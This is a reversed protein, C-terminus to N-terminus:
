RHQTANARGSISLGTLKGSLVKQFLAPSLRAVITWCLPPISAGNIAARDKATMWCGLVEIDTGTLNPGEHMVKMKIGNKVFSVMAAFLAAGTCVDGQADPAVDAVYAPAAIVREYANLIKIVPLEPM